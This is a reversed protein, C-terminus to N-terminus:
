KVVWRDLVREFRELTEEINVSTHAISTYVRGDPLLYVGEELLQFLWQRLSDRDDALTDRYDRLIPHETFHVSFATGFGTVKMPIGRARAIGSVGQMLKEGLQNAKKLQAGDERSLEELSIRAAELSLCNGNFTGGFVVGGDVILDLIDRRGAVASLPLGAAIAKGFTALDPTVGFVSQAGGPAMRFGTIVEDFILLAGHERSIRRLEALYGPAPMLCGSNCLVPETIIAAIEPGRQAFLAAVQDSDNWPLVVVNEAANSVQGRSGPVVKPNQAPGMEDARAHYSLLASDMWGHYHGEFKLILTRGTFARALRMALQVAESGSSTLAVREACPVMGCIAEAVLFELEHQAGYNHPREAARSLARVLAPHKHGLILPGWALVYDLYSNGDVDQIVAGNGNQFYLIAPFSRRFPSSVGGALSKQAREYFESSRKREKMAKGERYSQAQSPM